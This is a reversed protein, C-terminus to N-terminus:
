KNKLMSRLQEQTMPQGYPTFQIMPAPAELLPVWQGDQYDLFLFELKDEVIPIVGKVSKVKGDEFWTLKLRQKDMKKVIETGHCEDCKRGEKMVSHSFFPAFAVFTKGEYVLSQFNASTVKGQRNILFVWDTLPVSIKKDEKVQTDFHCNYCTVVRRTHCASCELKDKHVTHSLTSPTEQHCKECKIEMAGPELMSTYARGDGHIEMATHCDMCEMGKAFHLDLENRPQDIKYLMFNQRSHCNLCLEQNDAQMTSYYLKGEKEIGHCPDCNATHCNKCSLEDYPISTINELGGSEKQYWYSMGQSTYHLSSHFFEQKETAKQANVYFCLGLMALFLAIGIIFWQRKKM